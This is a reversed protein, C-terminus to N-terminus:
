KVFKGIKNFQTQNEYKTGSAFDFLDGQENMAVNAVLHPFKKALPTGEKLYGGRMAYMKGNKDVGGLYNCVGESDCISGEIDAHGTKTIVKGEIDILKVLETRGNNSENIFQGFSMINKM